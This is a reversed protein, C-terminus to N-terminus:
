DFTPPRLNLNCARGVFRGLEVCMKSAHSLARRTILLRVRQGDAMLALREQLLGDKSLADFDIELGVRQRGTPAFMYRLAAHDELPPMVARAHSVVEDHFKLTARYKAVASRLGLDGIKGFVGSEILDDYVATPPALPLANRGAALGSTMRARDATRWRGAQVEGLAYALDGIAKEQLHVGLRIYAVNQEAEALLRASAADRESTAQRETSWANIQFAILIGIVVLLFEIAVATWDQRRLASTFRKVIM